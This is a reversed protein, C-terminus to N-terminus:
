PHLAGSLVVTNSAGSTKYHAKIYTNKSTRRRGGFVERSGAMQEKKGCMCGRLAAFGGCSTYRDFCNGLSRSAIWKYAAKKGGKGERNM